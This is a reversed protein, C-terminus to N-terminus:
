ISSRPPVASDSAREGGEKSQGSNIFDRLSQIETLASSLRSNVLIHIEKLDGKTKKRSVISALTPPIAAIVAVIVLTWNM